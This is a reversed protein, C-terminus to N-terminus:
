PNRASIVELLKNKILERKIKEEALYSDISTGVPVYLITNYLTENPNMNSPTDFKHNLLIITDNKSVEKGIQIFQINPKWKTVEFKKLNGHKRSLSSDRVFLNKVLTQIDYEDSQVTQGIRSIKTKTPDIGTIFEQPTSAALGMINFENENFSSTGMVSNEGIMPKHMGIFVNYKVDPLNQDESIQLVEMSDASLGSWEGVTTNTFDNVFQEVSTYALKNPVWVMDSHPMGILLKSLDLDPSAKYMKSRFTKDRLELKFQSVKLSSNINYKILANFLVSVLNPNFKIAEAWSGLISM